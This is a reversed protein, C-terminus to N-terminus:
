IACPRPAWNGAHQVCYLTLLRMLYGLARHGLTRFMVEQSRSDPSHYVRSMIGRARRWM